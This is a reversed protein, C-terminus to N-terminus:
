LWLVELNYVTRSMHGGCQENLIKCLYVQSAEVHSSVIIAVPACKLPNGAM